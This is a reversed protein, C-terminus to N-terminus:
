RLPLPPPNFFFVADILGLVGFLIGLGGWIRTRRYQAWSKINGEADVGGRGITWARALFGVGADRV